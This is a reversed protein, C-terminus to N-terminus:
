NFYKELIYASSIYNNIKEEYSEGVVAFLNYELVITDNYNISKLFILGRRWKEKNIDEECLPLHDINNKFSHIHVNSIKKAMLYNVDTVIGYDAIEHGIDYTFKLEENKEFIPLLDKHSLRIIDDATNLNEMSIELSYNNDSVYKLLDAAFFNTKEIANYENSFDYPHYVIKIKYGAKLSVDNCYDLYKHQYNINFDTTSHFQVLLKNELSVNILDDMYEREIKNQYDFCLEFGSITSTVSNQKVMKVLESPPIKCFKRNISLMVKM